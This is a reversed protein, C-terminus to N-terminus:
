CKSKIIQRCQKAFATNSTHGPHYAVVRGQIRRGILALDGILDLLKHRAPENNYHLPCLFGLQKADVHPQHLMQTMKDVDDQTMPEDYIVLANDLDGGKILGMQSLMLVERVFCFTRAQAIEEAYNKMTFLEASQVGLVPSQFGIEVELSYYPQPFIEIKADRSPTMFCIPEEVVWINQELQQEKLGVAQINEVYIKASGDLIPMEAGDVLILCNDVGMAYLASMAHEVTSVKWDGQSLVTGRATESVYDAIAQFAPQGPLDVRRIRIGTNEAAPEFLAHVFQGTHLGKGEVAFSAKITHQNM